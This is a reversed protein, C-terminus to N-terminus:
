SRRAADIQAKTWGQEGLLREIAEDFDEQPPPPAPRWDLVWAPGSGEVEFGPLPLSCVIEGGFLFIQLVSSTPDEDDKLLTVLHRDPGLAHRVPSAADLERPWGPLGDPWTSTDIGGHWLVSRLARAVREDLWADDAIKSICGLAVKATFRVWLDSELGYTVEVWGADTVKNGAADIIERGNPSFRLIVNAGTATVAPEETEPVRQQRRVHRVDNLAQPVRVLLFESLPEDVERGIRENCDVCVKRTRLRGGLHASVVHEDSGAPKENGCYFCRMGSLM